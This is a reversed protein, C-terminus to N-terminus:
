EGEGEHYTLIGVVLIIIVSILSLIAFPSKMAYGNRHYTV